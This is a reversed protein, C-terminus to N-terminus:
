LLICPGSTGCLQHVYRSCFDHSNTKIASAIPEIAVSWILKSREPEESIRCKADISRTITGEVILEASTTKDDTQCIYLGADELAVRNIILRFTGNDNDFNYKHGHYIELHNKFWHVKGNPNSYKCSFVVKLEKETCTHDM